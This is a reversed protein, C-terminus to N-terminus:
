RKGHMQRQEKVAPPNGMYRLSDKSAKVKQYYMYNHSKLDRKLVMEILREFPVGESLRVTFEMTTLRKKGCARTKVQTIFTISAHYEGILSSEM